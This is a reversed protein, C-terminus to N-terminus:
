AIPPGFFSSPQCYLVPFRGPPVPHNMHGNWDHLALVAGYRGDFISALVDFCFLIHPRAARSHTTAVCRKSNPVMRMADDTRLSKSAHRISGSFLKCGTSDVFRCWSTSRSLLGDSSCNGACKKKSGRELRDEADQHLYPPPWAQCNTFRCRVPRWRWQPVVFIEFLTPTTM